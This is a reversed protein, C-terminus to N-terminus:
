SGRRQNRKQWQTLERHVRVNFLTYARFELNHQSCYRKWQAERRLFETVVKFDSYDKSRHLFDLFLNTLSNLKSRHIIEMQQNNASSFTAKGKVIM